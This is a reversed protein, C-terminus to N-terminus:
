PTQSAGISEVDESDLHVIVKGGFAETQVTLWYHDWPLGPVRPAFSEIVQADKGAFLGTKIKVRDGPNFLHTPQMIRREYETREM